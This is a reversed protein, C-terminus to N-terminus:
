NSDSKREYEDRARFCDYVNWKNGCSCTFSTEALWPQYSIKCKCCEYYNEKMFRNYYYRIKMIMGEMDIM